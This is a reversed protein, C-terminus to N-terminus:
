SENQKWKDYMNKFANVSKAEKIKDPLENWMKVVRVTFFNKRTERQSRPEYLVDTRRREQGEEIRTNTRTSRSQERSTLDFWDDRNVNNHGKIVKFTEIM